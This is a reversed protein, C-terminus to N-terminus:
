DSHLWLMAPHSSPCRQLVLLIPAKSESRNTEALELIDIWTLKTTGVQSQLTYVKLTCCSYVVNVLVFVFFSTFVFSRINWCGPMVYIDCVCGQVIIYLTMNTSMFNDFLGKSTCAKISESKFRKLKLRSLCIFRPQFTRWHRSGTPYSRKPNSTRTCLWLSPCFDFKAQSRLWSQSDVCEVCFM